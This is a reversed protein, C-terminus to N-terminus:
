GKSDLFVIHMLVNFWKRLQFIHGISWIMALKFNLIQNLTVTWYVKRKQEVSKFFLELLLFCMPGFCM